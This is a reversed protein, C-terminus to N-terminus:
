IPQFSVNINFILAVFFLQVRGGTGGRLVAQTTKEPMRILSDDDSMVLWILISNDQRTQQITNSSIMFVRVSTPGPNLPQSYVDQAGYFISSSYHFEEAKEEPCCWSKKEKEEGVIGILWYEVMYNLRMEDM